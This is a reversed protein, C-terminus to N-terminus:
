KSDSGPPIAPLRDLIYQANYHLFKWGEITVRRPDPHLSDQYVIDIKRQFSKIARACALSDNTKLSRRAAKLDNDLLSVFDADALWGFDAVQHKVTVLSDLMQQIPSGPPAPLPIFVDLFSQKVWRVLSPTDHQLWDKTFKVFGPTLYCADPTFRVTDGTVAPYQGYSPFYMSKRTEDPDRQIAWVSRRAQGQPDMSRLQLFFELLGTGETFQFGEELLAVARPKDFQALLRVTGSTGFATSDRAREEMLDGAETRYRPDSGYDALAFEVTRLNAKNRYEKKLIDFYERTFYKAESLYSIASLKLWFDPALRAISDMGKLAGADGYFGRVRQYNLYDRWPSSAALPTGAVDLPASMHLQELLFDRHEEGKCALIDIAANRALLDVLENSHNLVLERLRSISTDGGVYVYDTYVTSIQWLRQAHLSSAVCMLITLLLMRRKM